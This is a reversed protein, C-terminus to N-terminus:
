HSLSPSPSPTGTAIASLPATTMFIELSISANLVQWAPVAPATSTGGSAPGAAAGGPALTLSTVDTVRPLAQLKAMFQEIEFYGGAIQLQIAVGTLASTAAAGTLTTGAGTSTPATPAPAPTAGPVPAPAASATVKTLTVATPASPAISKLDVHAAVAAATLLRIYSALSVTDPIQQQIAAIRAQQAIVDKAQVTRMEITGQLALNAQEQTEAQARLKSAHARQPSILLVWGAILALLVVVAAGGSWRQSRNV